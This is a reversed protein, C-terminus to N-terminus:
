CIEGRTENIPSWTALRARSFILAENREFSVGLNKEREEGGKKKKSVIKQSEEEKKTRLLVSDVVSKRSIFLSVVSGRKRYMLGSFNRKLNEGREKKKKTKRRM